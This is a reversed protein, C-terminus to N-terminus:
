RDLKVLLHVAKRAARPGGRVSKDARLEGTLVQILSKKKAELRVRAERVLASDSHDGCFDSARDILDVAEEFERQAIFVELDDPLEQLWEPLEMELLDPDTEDAAAAASETSDGKVEEEEAVDDFPNRSNGGRAPSFVGGRNSMLSQRLTDSRRLAVEDRQKQRSRKANEFADMWVSKAEANACQFLRADPFVLLRFACKVTGGFDRVNVM